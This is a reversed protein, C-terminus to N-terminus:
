GGSKCTNQNNGNKQSWCISGHGADVVVRKQAREMEM